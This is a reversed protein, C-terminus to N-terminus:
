LEEDIINLTAFGNYLEKVKNNYAIAAEKETDYSGIRYVVNDKRCMAVWKISNSKDKVVGKYKSATKGNKGIKNRNHMNESVTCLRLNERSCNLKNGDIHDVVRKDDKDLNFLWRHLYQAKKDWIIVYGAALCCLSKGNIKDADAKSLLVTKGEGYKGTLNYSINEM